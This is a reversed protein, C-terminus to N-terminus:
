EVKGLIEGCRWCVREGDVPVTDIHLCPPPPDPEPEPEPFLWLQTWANGDM